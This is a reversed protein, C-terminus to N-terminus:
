QQFKTIFKVSSVSLNKLLAKLNELVKILDAVADTFLKYNERYKTRYLALFEVIDRLSKLNTKINKLNLEPILFQLEQVNILFNENFLFSFEESQLLLFLKDFDEFFIKLSDEAIAYKVDLVNKLFYCFKDVVKILKSFESRVQISIETFSDVNMHIFEVFAKVVDYYSDYFKKYTAKCIVVSRQVLPAFDQIFLYSNFPIRLKLNYDLNIYPTHKFKEFMESKTAM